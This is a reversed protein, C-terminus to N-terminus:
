MEPPFSRMAISHVMAATERGKQERSRSIVVTYPLALAPTDTSARKIHSRRDVAKRGGTMCHPPYRGAEDLTGGREAHIDSVRIM